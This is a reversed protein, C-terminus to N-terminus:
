IMHNYFNNNEQSYIYVYFQFYLYCEFYNALSVENSIQVHHHM